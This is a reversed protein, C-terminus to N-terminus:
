CSTSFFPTWFCSKTRVPRIAKYPPQSNVRITFKVLVNM